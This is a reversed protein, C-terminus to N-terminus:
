TVDWDWSGHNMSRFRDVEAKSTFYPRIFNPNQRDPAWKDWNVTHDYGWGKAPLSRSLHEYKYTHTYFAEREVARAETGKPVMKGAKPCYVEVTHGLLTM